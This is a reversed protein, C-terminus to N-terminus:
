SRVLVHVQILPAAAILVPAIGWVLLHVWGLWILVTMMKCALTKELVHGKQFIPVTLIVLELTTFQDYVNPWFMWCSVVNFIVCYWVQLWHVGWWSRDWYKGCMGRHRFLDYMHQRSIIMGTTFSWAFELRGICSGSGISGANNMCSRSPSDGNTGDEVLCSNDGISGISSKCSEEGICSLDGVNGTLFHILHTYDLGNFIYCVRAWVQKTKVPLTMFVVESELQVRLM